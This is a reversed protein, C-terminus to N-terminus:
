KKCYIYGGDSPINFTKWFLRAERTNAPIVALYEVNHKKAKRIAAKVLKTGYGKRKVTVRLDVISWDKKNFPREHGVVTLEDWAVLTFAGMSSYYAWKSPHMKVWKSRM